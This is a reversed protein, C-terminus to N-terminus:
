AQKRNVGKHLQKIEKRQLETGKYVGLISPSKEFFLRNSIKFFFCTIVTSMAVIYRSCVLMAPWRVGGKLKM